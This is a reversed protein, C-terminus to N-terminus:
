LEDLLFDKCTFIPLKSFYFDNLNETIIANCGANQAAYYQLGDEYDHIKKNQNVAYVEEQGVSVINLQNGLIKMKELARSSGCKKEAFYYAIALCIPSTYLSFKSKFNPLSLIRSSYTFLPMEHNLVSVLVNADLYLKM